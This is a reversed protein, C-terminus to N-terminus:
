GEKQTDLNPGPVLTGTVSRRMKLYTRAAKNVAEPTVASIREPWQEIDEITAGLSLSGGYIRGLSSQSDQSFVASRVLRSSARTVEESTVGDKVLKEIEANTAAEVEALTKGQAPSAFFGFETSDLSGGQYWAGASVAVKQDIVLSRYIRGTSSGLIESLVELAEAEGNEDTNYSPTLYLRQFSPTRVRHDAMDVRRAARPEPETPRKRVGPEARRKVKGYTEEALAKVADPEVDGAVVLIANNPTYFKDYFAIADDKTLADVEHAWGIVPIGYPHNKYLTAAMAERLLSGPNNETRANREEIVVDREALIKAQELVLNEMRDAELRMMEPLVEPTVRQFYATYDQSTFANEQGGIEAVKASFEGSEVTKTGKFMLHELYHAIGSVGPPEDAAGAKYWVMHTVVPARRDPIIVVKMGNDLTFATVQPGAKESASAQTAPKTTEAFSPASFATGLLLCATLLRAPTAHRMMM